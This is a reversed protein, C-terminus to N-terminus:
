KEATKLEEDQAPKGTFSDFQQLYKLISAPFVGPEIISINEFISIAERVIIASFVVTDFWSFISCIQNHISFTVLVHTTIIASSYVILKNFVMGFGKSSVQKLKVAKLFGLVTDVTCIIFLSKLFEWDSFIYKDIFHIFPAFMWGALLYALVAKM